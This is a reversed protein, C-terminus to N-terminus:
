VIKMQKQLKSLRASEKQMTVQMLYRIGENITVPPRSSPITNNRLQQSSADEFLDNYKSSALGIYTEQPLTSLIGRKLQRTECKGESRLCSGATLLFAKSSMRMPIQYTSLFKSFAM